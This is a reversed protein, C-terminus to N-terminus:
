WLGTANVNRLGVDVVQMLPEGPGSPGILEGIDAPGGADAPLIERLQDLVPAGAVVPALLLGPEVGNGLEAGIDVALGQVEQM